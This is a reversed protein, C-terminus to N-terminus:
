DNPTIVARGQIKGDHLLRYDESARALPFNETIFGWYPAAVSCESAPCRNLDVVIRM